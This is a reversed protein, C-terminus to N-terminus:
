IKAVRIGINDIKCESQKNQIHKQSKIIQSRNPVQNVKKKPVFPTHTDNPLKSILPVFDTRKLTVTEIVIVM